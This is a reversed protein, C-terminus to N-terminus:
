WRDSGGFGNFGEDDAVERTGPQQEQRARLRDAEEDGAKIKDGLIEQQTAMVRDMIDTRDGVYKQVIAAQRRAGDAVALRLASMISGSLQQASNRMAQETLKIDLVAGGPGAVVTVSRDPSSATARIASIEDKMGAYREVLANLGSSGASGSPGSAMM